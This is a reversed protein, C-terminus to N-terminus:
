VARTEPGTEYSFHGTKDLCERRTGVMAHRRVIPSNRLFADPPKLLQDLPLPLPREIGLRPQAPPEHAARGLPGAATAAAPRARPFLSICCSWRRRGGLERVHWTRADTCGGAGRRGPRFRVTEGMPCLAGREYPGLPPRFRETAPRREKGWGWPRPRLVQRLHRLSNRHRPWNKPLFSQRCDLLLDGRRGYARQGICRAVNRAKTAPPSTLGVISTARPHGYRANLPPSHIRTGIAGAFAWQPPGGGSSPPISVAPRGGFIAMGEVTRGQSQQGQM